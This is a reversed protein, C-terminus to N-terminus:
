VRAASYRTIVCSGGACSPAAREISFFGRVRTYRTHPIRAYNTRGLQTVCAREHLRSKSIYLSETVRTKATCPVRVNRPCKVITCFVLMRSFESSLSFPFARCSTEAEPFPCDDGRQWKRARRAGRKGSIYLIYTYRM